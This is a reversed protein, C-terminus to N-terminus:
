ARRLTEAYQTRCRFQIGRAGNRSHRNQIAEIKGGQDGREGEPYQRQNRWRGATFDTRGYGARLQRTRHGAKGDLKIAGGGKVKTSLSFPFNSTPSFELVELNVEDLVLPKWNISTRGITLRGDNINLRHVTLALGGAAATTAKSEPKAPASTSTGLSSYNWNGAPTQLLTIEPKEITIGTVNLQHSFILPKLEVGIRLAKARLFPVKGFAPDEAIELDNAEFSGAFISLSLNGLKVNRQLAESLRSELTPRFRNADILFILAVAAVILVGVGIGIWMLARKMIKKV